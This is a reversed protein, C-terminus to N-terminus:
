FALCDKILQKKRKRSYPKRNRKLHQILEDKYLWLNNKYSGYKCNLRPIISNSVGYFIKHCYSYQGNNRMLAMEDPYEKRNFHYSTNFENWKNEKRDRTKVWFLYLTNNRYDKRLSMVPSLIIQLDNKMQEHCKAISMHWVMQRIKYELEEPLQSLQKDM